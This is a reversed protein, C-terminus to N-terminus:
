KGVACVAHEEDAIQKGLLRTPIPYVAKSPSM